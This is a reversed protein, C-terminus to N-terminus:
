NRSNSSFIYQFIIMCLFSYLTSYFVKQITLWFLSLGGVEIFFLAFHHVFTLPLAFTLFWQLGLSKLGLQVNADSSSGSLTVDLWFPRIFAILVCAAAHIGPTDYFMDVFLGILFAVVLAAVRNFNFPLLLILMMYPMCFAVQFLELDKLIMVQAMILVVGTIISRVM